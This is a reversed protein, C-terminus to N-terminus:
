EESREWPWQEELWRWSNCPFYISLPGYMRQYKDSLDRLEQCYERHICIARKDTSHTNLYEGIDTIAFKLARINCLMENQVEVNQECCMQNQYCNEKSLLNATNYANVIKGSLYDDPMSNQIVSLKCFVDAYIKYKESNNTLIM